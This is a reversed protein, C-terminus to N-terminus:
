RGGGAPARGNLLGAGPHHKASIRLLRALSPQGSQHALKILGGISIPNAVNIATGDFWPGAGTADVEGRVLTYLGKVIDNLQGQHADLLALVSHLHDLMPRLSTRNDHVLGTLQEALRSTNVLLQGIVQRRADIERLLLSGDGLLQAVNSRREALVGSVAQTRQLLQGLTASRSAITRSLRSLGTLTSRLVAPSHRFTAALTNLASALQKSNVRQSTRALNQLAPEVDYPAATRSEPIERDADWVGGGSPILALYKNGLLTAIQISLRSGPGVHVSDDTIDFGVRVHTGELTVSQVSGVPVGAVEVQDGPRLGAAESFAASYGRGSTFPLNGLNLALAVLAVLAVVAVVGIPVPNLDRLQPLAKRRSM